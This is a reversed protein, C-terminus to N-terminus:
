AIAHPERGFRVILVTVDGTRHGRVGELLRACEQAPAGGAAMGAARLRALGGGLSERPREVLGESYLVVETGAAEPCAPQGPTARQRGPRTRCRPDPAAGVPGCGM